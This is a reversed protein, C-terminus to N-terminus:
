NAACVEAGRADVHVTLRPSRRKAQEVQQCFSEVFHHHLLQTSLVGVLAMDDKASTPQAAMRDCKTVLRSVLEPNFLGSREVADKSLVEGVYDPTKRGVFCHSDPARYPQKPRRVISEPIESEMSKKLIHKEDLGRLKYKAPIRSCLDVVHHDLFPFRGEVSHAMAMRDGQSSLLYGSLFTCVELYQARSLPNWNSIKENLVAEVEPMSDHKGLLSLLNESFLAKLKATNQWRLLHSYYPLETQNLGNSFFRQWYHRARSPSHALYPYLKQLLLPRLRSEPYRAWFHRIKAEKFINYGGLFEDAGEGTLVVKINSQRVLRSLLFLPAPATRLIPSEAHWVVEPFVAAIDDRTCEIERHQTKLHGILENQYRGEDYRDDEFRISFTILPASTYNKIITTIVSSDLGGSLYAGVPVDARLRLRTSAILAERLEEAMADVSRDALETNQEAFDLQWYRETFTQGNRVVMYHAPPLEMVDKFPTRPPITVWFTFIQDLAVPDIELSVDPHPGISKVESAFALQGNRLTYYLPRIGLRDRALFLERKRPDWLAFAFQGNFQELCGYGYEEYAHVITETDSATKFTHGRSELEQRLEVYNFIEGNFVIWLTGDENSLPQSGRSLDIIALRAHGLGIHEDLYVGAEDPGRHHVMAIMTRITEVQVPKSGNLSLIGCIACMSAAKM